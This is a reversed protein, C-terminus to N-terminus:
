RPRSRARSSALRHAIAGITSAGEEWLTCLVLYQTYTVGLDDLLPKYLRQVAISASYISFCAATSRHRAPADAGGLRLDGVGGPLVLRAVVEDRAVVLHEGLRQLAPHGLPRAHVDGLSGAAVGDVHRLGVRDGVQDPPMLASVVWRSADPM